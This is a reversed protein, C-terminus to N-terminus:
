QPAELEDGKRVHAGGLRVKGNKEKLWIESETDTLWNFSERYLPNSCGGGGRELSYGEFFTLKRCGGTSLM